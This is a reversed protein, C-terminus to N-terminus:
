NSQMAEFDKLVTKLERYLAVIMRNRSEVTVTAIEPSFAEGTYIGVGAVAFETRKDAGNLLFEVLIGAAKKEGFYFEDVRRREPAKGSSMRIVREVASACAGRFVDIQEIGIRVPFAASCYIGGNEPSPFKGGLKDRGATQSRALVLCEGDKLYEYAAASNTSTVESFYLVRAGTEAAIVAPSLLDCTEALLYGKKTSSLIEYGEQVLAHVAKSIAQRSVGLKRAISEGSVYEGRARELSELVCDKATM